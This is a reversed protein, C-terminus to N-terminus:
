RVQKIDDAKEDFDLFYEYLMFFATFNVYFDYIAYYM